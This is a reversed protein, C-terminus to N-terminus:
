HLNNICDQNEGLEKAAKDCQRLASTGWATLGVRGIRDRSARSEEMAWVTARLLHQWIELELESQEASNWDKMELQRDPM